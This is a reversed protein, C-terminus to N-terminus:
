GITYKQQIYIKAVLFGFFGTMFPALVMKLVEIIIEVVGGTLSYSDYIVM